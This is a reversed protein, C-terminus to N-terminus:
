NRVTPRNVAVLRTILSREIIENGKIRNILVAVLYAGNGVKRGNSNEGHWIFYFGKKSKDGGGDFFTKHEPPVTWVENGVADYINVDAEIRENGLLNNVNDPTVKILMVNQLVNTSIDLSDLLFPPLKIITNDLITSKLVFDVPILVPNNRLLRRVNGPNKQENMMNDYVNLDFSANIWISDGTKMGDIIEGNSGKIYDVWFTSVDNTTNVLHLYAFYQVGSQPNRFLFPQTQTITGTNESFTVVLTDHISDSLIDQLYAANIVPAM